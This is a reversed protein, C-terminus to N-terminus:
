PATLLVASKENPFVFIEAGAPLQVADRLWFTENRRAGFPELWLLHKVAGDPTRARVELPPNAAARVGLVTVPADLVTRHAAELPRAAPPGPADDKASLSSTDLYVPDGRPAGGEVWSPIVAIEESSLSQEGIYAGYGKVAGWPPMRRELVQVKIAKAWPRVDDYTMLAM